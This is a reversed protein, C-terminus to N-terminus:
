VIKIKAITKKIKQVDKKVFFNKKKNRQCFIVSRTDFVDGLGFARPHEIM